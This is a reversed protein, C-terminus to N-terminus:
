VRSDASQGVSVLYKEILEEDIRTLESRPLVELLRWGITLTEEISRDENFGQNVFQQEFEEAFTAYMRDIPTLSAEGLVVALERADIGRAYAAFLQNAVGSHDERTSGEGVGKQM